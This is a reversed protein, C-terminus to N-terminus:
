FGLNTNLPNQTPSRRSAPPQPDDGPRPALARATKLEAELRVIREDLAQAAKLEAELRVVREDLARLQKEVDIKPEGKAGVIEVRGARLVEIREQSGNCGAVAVAVAFGLGVAVCSSSPLRMM